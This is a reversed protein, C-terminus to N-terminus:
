RDEHQAPRGQTVQFFAFLTIGVVILVAPMAVLSAVVESARVQAMGFHVLSFVTGAAPITGLLLAAGLVIQGPTLSADTATERREPEEYAPSEYPNIENM